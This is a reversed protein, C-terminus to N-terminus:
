HLLTPLYVMVEQGSPCCHKASGNGAEDVPTLTCHSVGLSALFFSCGCTEAPAPSLEAPFLAAFDDVCFGAAELEAVVLGAAGLGAAGLGAAM